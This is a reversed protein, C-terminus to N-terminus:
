KSIRDYFFKVGAKGFMNNIFLGLAKKLGLLKAVRSMFYISSSQQYIFKSYYDIYFQIDSKYQNFIPLDVILRMNNLNKSYDKMARTYSKEAFLGCANNGHLRYSMLPLNITKIDGLSCAVLNYFFDHYIFGAPIDRAAFAVEKTMMLCCGHVGERMLRVFFSEIPYYDIFELLSEGIKNGKDDILSADHHILKANGINSVLVAVKNKYWIDDQDSLVILDGHCNNVAIEFSKTPGFNSPNKILKILPNTIQYEKIIEVTGDMSADDVIVIEDISISQQLISDLQMKLFLEGNYTALAVSISKGMTTM